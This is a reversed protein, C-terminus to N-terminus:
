SRPRSGKPMSRPGRGTRHAPPRGGPGRDGGPDDVLPAVQWRDRGDDTRVGRTFPRSPVSRDPSCIASSGRASRSRPRPQRRRRPVAPRTAPSGDRRRLRSRRPRPPRGGGSRHRWRGFGDARRACPRGSAVGARGADVGHSTPRARRAAFRQGSGKRAGSSRSRAPRAPGWTVRVFGSAASSDTSRGDSGVPAGQRARRVVAAVPVPVNGQELDSMHEGHGGLALLEGVLTLDQADRQAPRLGRRGDLDPLSRM